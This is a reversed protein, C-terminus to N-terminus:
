VSAGQLDERACDMFNAIDQAHYNGMDALQKAHQLNDSAEISKLLASIRQLTESAFGLANAADEYDPQNLTIKAPKAQPQATM